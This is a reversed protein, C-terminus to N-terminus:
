VNYDYGCKKCGKLDNSDVNMTEVFKHESVIRLNTEPIYFVNETEILAKELDEITSDINIIHYM